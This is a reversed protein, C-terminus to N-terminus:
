LIFFYRKINEKNLTNDQVDFSMGISSIDKKYLLLLACGLKTEFLPENDNVQIEESSSM